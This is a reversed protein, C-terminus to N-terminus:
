LRTQCCDMICLQICLRMKGTPIRTVLMALLASRSEVPCKTFAPIGSSSKVFAMRCRQRTFLEDPVGTNVIDISSGIPNLGNWWSEGIKLARVQAMM